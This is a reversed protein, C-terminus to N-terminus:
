HTRNNFIYSPLFLSNALVWWQASWDSGVKANDFMGIDVVPCVILTIFMGKDM